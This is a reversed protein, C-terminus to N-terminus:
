PRKTVAAMTVASRRINELSSISSWVNKAAIRLGSDVDPLTQRSYNLDTLSSDELEIAVNQLISASETAAAILKEQLKLAESLSRKVQKYHTVLAARDAPNDISRIDRRWEAFAEDSDVSLKKHRDRLSHSQRIMSWASEFGEIRMHHLETPAKVTRLRSFRARTKEVLLAFEQQEARATALQEILEERKNLILDEKNLAASLSVGAFISCSSFFVAFILLRKRDITTLSPILLEKLANFDMSINDFLYM